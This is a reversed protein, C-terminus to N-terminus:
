QVISMSSIHLFHCYILISQKLKIPFCSSYTILLYYFAMLKACLTVVTWEHWQKSDECCHKKRRARQKQESRGCAWCECWLIHIIHLLCHFFRPLRLFGKYPNRALYARTHATAGRGWCATINFAMCPASLITYHITCIIYYYTFMIPTLTLLAVKYFVLFEAYFMKLYSKLDYLNRYRRRYLMCIRWSM